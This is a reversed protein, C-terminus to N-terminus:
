GGTPKLFHVSPFHDKNQAKGNQLQAGLGNQDNKGSSLLPKGKMTLKSRRRYKILLFFVTLVACAFGAVGVAVSVQLDSVREPSSLM